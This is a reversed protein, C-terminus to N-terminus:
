LCAMHLASIYSEYSPDARSLKLLSQETEM